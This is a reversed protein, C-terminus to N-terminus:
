ITVQQYVQVLKGTRADVKQHEAIIIAELRKVAVEIVDNIVFYDYMPLIEIEDKAKALRGAASDPTETARGLLRARLEALTPPLAFILVAEPYNAKVQLAGKVDIELIVDRGKALEEEVWKRPTGYFNGFNEAHELLECKDIMDVFRERSVFFYSEGDTEDERPTRTTASVSLVADTEKILLSCL